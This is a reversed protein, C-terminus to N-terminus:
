DIIWVLNVVEIRFKPAVKRTPMCLKAGQTGLDAESRAPVGVVFACYIAGAGADM